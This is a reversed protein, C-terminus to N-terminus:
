TYLLICKTGYNLNQSQDDNREAQGTVVIVKINTLSFHPTKVSKSRERNKPLFYNTYTNGVSMKHMMWVILIYKTPVEAIRTNQIPIVQM